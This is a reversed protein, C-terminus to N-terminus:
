EATIDTIKWQGGEQRMTASMEKEEPEGDGKGASELCLSFAVEMGDRSKKTGTVRVRIMDPVIALAGGAESFLTQTRGTFNGVYEMVPAITDCWSEAEATKGSVLASYFGSLVEQPGSPGAGSAAAEDDPSFIRILLVALFIICLAAIAGWKWTLYKKIDEKTMIGIGTDAKVSM